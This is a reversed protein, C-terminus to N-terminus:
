DGERVVPGGGRVRGVVVGGCVGTAWFLFPSTGCMMRSKGAILEFFEFRRRSVRRRRIRAADARGRARIRGRAGMIGARVGAPARAIMRGRATMSGPRTM